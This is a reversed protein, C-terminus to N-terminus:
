PAGRHRKSSRQPFQAKPEGASAPTAPTRVTVDLVVGVAHAYRVLTSWQPDGTVGTELDSVASQGTGMAAAVARQSRGATRRAEALLVIVPNVSM